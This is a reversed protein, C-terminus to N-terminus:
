SSYVWLIIGYTITDGQVLCTKLDELTSLLCAQSWGGLDHTQYGEWSWTKWPQIHQKNLCLTQRHGCIDDKGQSWQVILVLVFVFVERWNCRCLQNQHSSCKWYVTLIYKIPIAICKQKNGLKPNQSEQLSAWQLTCFDGSHLHSKAWLIHKSNSVSLIIETDGVKLEPPVSAFAFMNLLHDFM